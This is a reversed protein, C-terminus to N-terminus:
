SRNRAPVMVGEIFRRELKGLGFWAASAAIVLISNAITLWTAITVVTFVSSLALAIVALGALWVRIKQIKALAERCSRCHKTHSHYRDLLQERNQKPPL